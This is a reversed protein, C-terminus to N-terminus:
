RSSSLWTRPLLVEKLRRTGELLGEPAPGTATQFDARSGQAFAARRFDAVGPEFVAGSFVVSGGTFAAQGFDVSGATFRAETFDVDAGSFAADRFDVSAGAFRVGRFSVRGLCFRAQAFVVSGGGFTALAFDGGDFIAGTFDFDYGQWSTRAGDRLHAAVCRVVTRRVERMCQGALGDDDPDFPLRLYACLVDICTQRLARSPADDALGALGHVGALRVTAEAHGLKDTLTAFRENFLATRERAEAAEGVRQRRYATVLAVLGGGGAVVAFAVKLLDFM